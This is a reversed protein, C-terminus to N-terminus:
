NPPCAQDHVGCGSVCIFDTTAFDFASVASGVQVTCEDSSARLSKPFGVIRAIAVRGSLKLAAELQRSEANPKGVEASGPVVPRQLSAMFGLGALGGSVFAEEM